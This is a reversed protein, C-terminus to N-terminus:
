HEWIDDAAYNAIKSITYIILSKKSKPLDWEDHLGDSNGGVRQWNFTRKGFGSWKIHFKQM